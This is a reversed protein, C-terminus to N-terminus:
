FNLISSVRPDSIKINKTRLNNREEKRGREERRKDKRGERRKRGEKSAKREGGGCGSKKTQRNPKPFINRGERSLKPTRDIHDTFIFRCFSSTIM